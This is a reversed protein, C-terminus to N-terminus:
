PNAPAGCPPADTTPGVNIRSGAGITVLRANEAPQTTPICASFNANLLTTGTANYGFGDSRFIVRSGPTTIATSAWLEMPTRVLETRYAEGVDLVSDADRDVFAIWGQWRAGTTCATGNSTPCIIVRRGTRVAEMRASQLMAAVDNSQAALRNTNFVAIFSPMALATLVGLVALVMMLEIVTYGRVGRALPPPGGRFTCRTRSRM